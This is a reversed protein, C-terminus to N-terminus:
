QLPGPSDPGDSEERGDVSRGTFTAVLVMCGIMVLLLSLVGWPGPVWIAFPFVAIGSTVLVFGLWKFVTRM